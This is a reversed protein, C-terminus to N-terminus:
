KWKWNGHCGNQIRDVASMMFHRAIDVIDYGLRAQYFIHPYFNFDRQWRLGNVLKQRKRKPPRWRPNGTSPSTSSRLKLVSSLLHFAVNPEHLWNIVSVRLVDVLKELYISAVQMCHNIKRWHFYLLIFSMPSWLWDPLTLIRTKIKTKDSGTKM